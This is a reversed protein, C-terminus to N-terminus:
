DRAAAEMEEESIDDWGDDMEQEIKRLFYGIAIAAGIVIVPVPGTSKMLVWFIVWMWIWKMRRGRRGRWGCMCDCGEHSCRCRGCCGALIAIMILLGLM